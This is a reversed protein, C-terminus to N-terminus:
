FLSSVKNLLEQSTFPKKLFADAGAALCEEEAKSHVSVIIVKIHRTTENEKIQKCVENGNIFKEIMRMFILNPNYDRM